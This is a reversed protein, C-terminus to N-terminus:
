RKSKKSFLDTYIFFFEKKHRISNASLREGNLLRMVIPKKSSGIIIKFLNKTNNLRKYSMSIREKPPKPSNMEIVVNQLKDYKHGPFLSSIHGDSGVSLLVLDFTDVKKLKNEYDKRAKDLGLEAQIFKINKKPIRKNNLWIKNIAKDNRDQHNKPLFREDSIYIHWKEFNSVSKSLIQYLGLISKGGTLVISFFGKKIISKKAIDLIEAHLNKFLNKKNNFFFANKM